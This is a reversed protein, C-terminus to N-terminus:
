PDRLVLAALLSYAQTASLKDAPEYEYVSSRRTRFNMVLKSVLSTFAQKEEYSVLATYVEICSFTTGKHISDFAMDSATKVMNAILQYKSVDEKAEGSSGILCEAETVDLNIAPTHELQQEPLESLEELQEGALQQEPLSCVVGSLSGSVRQRYFSFDEQSRTSVWCGRRKGGKNCHISVPLTRPNSGGVM